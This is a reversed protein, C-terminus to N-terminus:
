RREWAATLVRAPPQLCGFLGAWGSGPLAAWVWLRRGAPFLRGPHWSSSRGAETEEGTGSAALVGWMRPKVPPATYRPTPNKPDCVPLSVLPSSNDEAQGEHVRLGSLFLVCLSVSAQSVSLLVSGLAKLWAWPALRAQLWAGPCELDMREAQPNQMTVSATPTQNRYRDGFAGSVMSAKHVASHSHPLFVPVPVQEGGELLRFGLQSSRVWRGPTQM